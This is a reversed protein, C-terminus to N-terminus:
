VGSTVSRPDGTRVNKLEPDSILSQGQHEIEITYKYRGSQYVQDELRIQEAGGEDLPEEVRIHGVKTGTLSM